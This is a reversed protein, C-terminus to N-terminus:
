FLKKYISLLNNIMNELSFKQIIIERNSTGISIKDISSIKAVTVMKEALMNFDQIPVLFDESNLLQSVGGCNTSIILKEASMAEAIVLPLGEWASSLVFIDAMNLLENIDKRLGLLIVFDQLGLDVILTEINGRLEGDGVIILKSSTLNSEIFKKYAFLLNKHDKQPTFSGITIFVLVDDALTFKKRMEIRIKENPYFKNTDIGNALTITKTPNFVKNEIFHKTSIDSVNINIDTFLETRKYLFSRLSNGYKTNHAHSIVKIDKFFIKSIRSLIIAHFMHAHLINPKFDHIIKIFKKLINFFNVKNLGLNIIEIDRKPTVKVEGSLCVIKINYGLDFMKDATEVVIREAGGVGLGTICYLIKM